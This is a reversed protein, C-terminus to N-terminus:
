RRAKREDQEKRALEGIVAEDLRVRARQARMSRANAVDVSVFMRARNGSEGDAAVETWAAAADRAAGILEGELRELDSYDSM